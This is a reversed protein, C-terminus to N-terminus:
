VRRNKWRGSWLYLFSIVGVTLAYSSDCLWCWAMNSRWVTVVQYIAAAYVATAVLEILLAVRTNGTGTVANFLIYAATQILTNIVIAYTTARTAEILAESDTFIRLVPVPFLCFLLLSIGTGVFALMVMRRVLKIVQDSHGAGILNSVLSSTVTAFASLIMFSISSVSRIINGVALSQEGLHEVALFFWFWIGVAIFLQLMTWISTNMIEGLLKWSFRGVSNLAYKVADVRWKIYVIFFIVGAGEAIVSAVAAGAVGLAPLGCKGFILVYNLATNTLLMVVSSLTLVKTDTVAVFFARFMVAQFVVFFGLTRWDLYRITETYVAESTIVSRLILPTLFRSLLFLLAALVVMFQCCCFFIRGIGAFNGEGNRRAMIIQAGVSFGFGVMYVALFYISGLAAAGLEVEGVRGLFATDTMGVLHQMLLSVLVPWTLRWIRRNNLSTLEMTEAMTM